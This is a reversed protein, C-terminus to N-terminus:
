IRNKMLKQKEKILFVVYKKKNGNHLRVTEEAYIGEEVEKFDKAELIFEQTTKCSKSL